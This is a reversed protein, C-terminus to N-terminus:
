VAQPTSAMGAALGPQQSFSMKSSAWLGLRKEEASSNGLRAPGLGYPHLLHDVGPDPNVQHYEMTVNRSISEELWDRQIAARGEM